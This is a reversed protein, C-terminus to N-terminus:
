TPSVQIGLAQMLIVTLVATVLAVGIPILVSRVCFGWIEHLKLELLHRSKHKPAINHYGRIVRECTILREEELYIIAPEIEHPKVSPLSLPLDGARMEEAMEPLLGEYDPESLFYQVGTRYRKPDGRVVEELRIIEKLVKRATRDM